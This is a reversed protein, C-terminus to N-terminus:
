HRGGGCVELIAQSRPDIESWPPLKDGTFKSVPCAERYAEYAVQGDEPQTKPKAWDHILGQTEDKEVM